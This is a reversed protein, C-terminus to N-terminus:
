PTNTLRPGNVDSLYFLTDMVKSHEREEARIRQIAYLDVKEEAMSGFPLLIALAAACLLVYKRPQM